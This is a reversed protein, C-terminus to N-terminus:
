VKLNASKYVKVATLREKSRSSFLESNKPLGLNNQGMDHNYQVKKQRYTESLELM